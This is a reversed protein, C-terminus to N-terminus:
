FRGLGKQMLEEKESIKRINETEQKPFKNEYKYNYKKNLLLSTLRSNIYEKSFLTSDIDNRLLKLKINAYIVKLFTDKSVENGSNDFIHGDKLSFNLEKLVENMFINICQKLKNKDKSKINTITYETTEKEKPTNEKPLEIEENLRNLLTQYYSNDKKEIKKLTDICNLYMDKYIKKTNVNKTSIYANYLTNITAYIDKIEKM